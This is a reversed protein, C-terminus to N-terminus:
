WICRLAIEEIANIEFLGIRRGRERWRSDHEFHTRDKSHAILAPFEDYVRDDIENNSRMAFSIERWAGAQAVLKALIEKNSGFVTAVKALDIHVNADAKAKCM